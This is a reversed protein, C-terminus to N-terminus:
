YFKIKGCIYTGRSRAIKFKHTEVDDLFEGLTHSFLSQSQRHQPLAWCGTTYVLRSNQMERHMREAADLAAYCRSRWVYTIHTNQIKHTDARRDWETLKGVM